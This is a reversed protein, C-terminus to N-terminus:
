INNFKKFYYNVDAIWKNAAAQGGTAACNSGCKWIVMKAPTDLKKNSVLFAIRKAVTDVADKRSNFCTHGGTGMLKRIGRYGWYNYCDQGDLVPVRRGWLSEKRAISVLFAAVIPDQEAIYPVMEEIPYGKVMERIKEESEDKKSEILDNLISEFYIGEKIKEQEDEAGLVKTQPYDQDQSPVQQVQGEATIKKNDASAGPGLYRYFLSMSVMGFLIAGIMSLNWVKVLSLGRYFSLTRFRIDEAGERISDMKQLYLSILRDKKKTPRYKMYGQIIRFSLGDLQGPFRNLFVGKQALEREHPTIYRGSRETFFCDTRKGRSFLTATKKDGDVMLSATRRKQDLVSDLLRKLKKNEAM